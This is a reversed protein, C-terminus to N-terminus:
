ILGRVLIWWRNLLRDLLALGAGETRGSVLRTTFPLPGGRLLQRDPIARAAQVARRRALIARRNSLVFRISEWWQPLWGKRAAAALQIVEYVVLAPALLVLTRAAYDKILVLWRNRILCRVRTSTYRGTQRLSLGRTGAGHRCVASPVSLMAHGAIRTRLGFDHDELYIFFDRDFPEGPGLRARDALFCASVMSDIDCTAAPAAALPMEANRLAMLGVFHCLGGDYQIVDPREAHVIRPTAVAADPRAALARRLEQACGPELVVDNDLFLILDCAAARWGANRAAAPGENVALPLMRVSPFRERVLELSGDTSANDVLLVERYLHGQGFLATLTPELCQEGNWNVVVAALGAAVQDARGPDADDRM